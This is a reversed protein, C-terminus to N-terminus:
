GQERHLLATACVTFVSWERRCLGQLLVEQFVFLSVCKMRTLVLLIIAKESCFGYAPWSKPCLSFLPAKWFIFEEPIQYVGNEYGQLWELPKKWVPSECRLESSNASSLLHRCSHWSALSGIQSYNWLVWSFQQLTLLKYMTITRCKKSSLGATRYGSIQSYAGNFEIPNIVSYVHAPIHQLFCFCFIQCCLSLTATSMEGGPISKHPGNVAIWAHSCLWSSVFHVDWCTEVYGDRETYAAFFCVCRALSPCTPLCLTM